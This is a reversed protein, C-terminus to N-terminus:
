AFPDVILGGHPRLLADLWEQLMFPTTATGFFRAASGSDGYQPGCPKNSVDSWIGGTGREGREESSQRDGYVDFRSLVAPSQDLLINTPWRGDVPRPEGAKALGTNEPTWTRGGAAAGGWGTPKESPIRSADINIGGTGHKVVNEAVTGELPKRALIVPVFGPGFSQGNDHFWGIADRVEFRAMRIAMSVIDFDTTDLVAALHGGPKLVRFMERWVGGKHGILERVSQRDITTKFDSFASGAFRPATVIADVSADTHRGLVVFPNM